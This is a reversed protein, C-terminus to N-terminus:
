GQFDYDNWNQQTLNMNCAPSRVSWRRGGCGCGWTFNPNLSTILPGPSLKILTLLLDFPVWSSSNELLFDETVIWLFLCYPRDRGSNQFKCPKSEMRLLAKTLSSYNSVSYFCNMVMGIVWCWRWFRLIEDSTLGQLSLLNNQEKLNGKTWLWITLEQRNYRWKFTKNSLRDLDAMESNNGKTKKQKIQLHKTSWKTLRLNSLWYLNVM